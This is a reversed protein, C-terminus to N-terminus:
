GTTVFCSGSASTRFQGAASRFHHQGGARPEARVLDDGKRRLAVMLPVVELSQRWRLATRPLFRKGSIV